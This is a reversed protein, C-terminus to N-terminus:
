KRLEKLLDFMVDCEAKIALIEDIKVMMLGKLWSEGLPIPLPDFMANSLEEMSNDFCFQVTPIGFHDCGLFTAPEFKNQGTHRRFIYKKGIILEDFKM